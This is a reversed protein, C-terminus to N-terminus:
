VGLQKRLCHPSARLPEAAPAAREAGIADVLINPEEQFAESVKM